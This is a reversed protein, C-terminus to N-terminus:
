FRKLLKNELFGQRCGLLALVLVQGLPGKRANQFFADVIDVCRVQDAGTTVSHVACDIVKCIPPGSPVKFQLSNIADM